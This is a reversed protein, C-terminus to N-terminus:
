SARRERAIGVFQRYEARSLRHGGEMLNTGISAAARRIQSVLGFREDPPFRLSAKYIELTLKHAKKFVDLDEVSKVAEM